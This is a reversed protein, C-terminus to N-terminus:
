MDPALAQEFKIICAPPQSSAPSTQQMAFNTASAADATRAQAQCTFAEPATPAGRQAQGSAAPAGTRVGSGAVVSVLIAILVSHFSM